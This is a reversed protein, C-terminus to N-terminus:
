WWISYKLDNGTPYMNISFQLTKNKLIFMIGM